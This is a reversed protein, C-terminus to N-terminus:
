LGSVLICKNYTEIIWLFFFVFYVHFWLSFNCCWSFKFTMKNNAMARAAAASSWEQESFDHHRQVKAPLIVIEREGKGAKVTGPILHSCLPTM